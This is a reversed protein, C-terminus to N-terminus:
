ATLLGVGLEKAEGAWCIVAANMRRRVHRRRRGCTCSHAGHCGGGAGRALVRRLQVRNRARQAGAQVAHQRVVQAVVGGGEVLM